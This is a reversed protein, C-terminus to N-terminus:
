CYIYLKNPHITRQSLLEKAFARLQRAERLEGTARAASSRSAVDASSPRVFRLASGAATMSGAAAAAAASTPPASEPRTPYPSSAEQSLVSAEHIRLAADATSSRISAAAIAPRQRAGGAPPRQQRAEAGAQPTLPTLPSESPPRSSSASAARPGAFSQSLPSRGRGLKTSHVRSAQSARSGEMSASWPRAFSQAAAEASYSARARNALFSAFAPSVPRPAEHTSVPFAPNWAFQQTLDMAGPSQVFHMNREFMSVYSPHPPISGHRAAASPGNFAFPTYGVPAEEFDSDGHAADSASTATPDSVLGFARLAARERSERPAVTAMAKTAARLVAIHRKSPKEATAGGPTTPVLPPTTPTAAPAILEGDPTRRGAYVDYRRRQSPPPESRCVGLHYYLPIARQQMPPPPPPDRPVFPSAAAAAAFAAVAVTAVNPTGHPTRQADARSVHPATGLAYHAM